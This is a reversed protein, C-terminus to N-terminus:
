CTSPPSLLARFDRCILDCLQNPRPAEKPLCLRRVPISAALRGVVLFERARMDRDLLNTAYTNAVLALLSAQASMDEIHPEPAISREGFIYVAGLPLSHKQFKPGSDGLALRRKEWHPTFRPASDASGYLMSVSEPWLSVFPFSPMIHPKGDRETVSVIDDSLVAYGRQSLAAATTSKGTGSTGVFAVAWDEMAIASAHLCTTGRLRLVFGLVPGIMYTAMDEVSSAVPWTAWVSRGRDDLWFQVGDCYTLHLLDGHALKSIRLTPKGSEDFYASEFIIAEEQEVGGLFPASGLCIQIDPVKGPEALTLGPILFNSSLLLGFASHTVAM